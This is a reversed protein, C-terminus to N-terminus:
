AIITMIITSAQSTPGHHTPQDVIIAGSPVGDQELPSDVASCTYTENRTSGVIAPEYKKIIALSSQCHDTRPILISEDNSMTSGASKKFVNGELFLFHHHIVLQSSPQPPGSRRVVERPLPAPLLM